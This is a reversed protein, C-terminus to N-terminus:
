SVIQYNALSSEIEECAEKIAVKSRTFKEVDTLEMGYEVAYQLAQDKLYDDCVFLVDLNFVIDQSVAIPLKDAKILDVVGTILSLLIAKAEHTELRKLLRDLPIRQWKEINCDTTKSNTM